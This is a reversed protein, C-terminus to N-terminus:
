NNKKEIILQSQLGSPGPYGLTFGHSNGTLRITITNNKAPDVRNAMWRIRIPADYIGPLFSLTNGQTVMEYDVGNQLGDGVLVEYNVILEDNLPASSLYVYYTNVNKVDSLVVSSSQGAATSIRVFPQEFWEGEQDACSILCSGLLFCLGILNMKTKM